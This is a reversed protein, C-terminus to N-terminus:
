QSFTSGVSIAIHSFVKQFLNSKVLMGLAVFNWPKVEEIAYEKGAVEGVKSIVDIHEDLKM